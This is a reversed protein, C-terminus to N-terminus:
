RDEPHVPAVLHQLPVTVATWSKEPVGGLYRRWQDPRDTWFIVSEIRLPSQAKEYLRNLEDAWAGIEGLIRDRLGTVRVGSDAAVQHMLIVPADWLMDVWGVAHGIIQLGSTGNEEPDIKVVGLWAGLLGPTTGWLSRLKRIVPGEPSSTPFERIMRRVRAELEPWLMWSRPDDPTLRKLLLDSM